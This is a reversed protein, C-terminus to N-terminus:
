YIQTLLIFFPPNPKYGAQSAHTMTALCPIAAKGKTNVWRRYLMCVQSAAGDDSMRRELVAGM